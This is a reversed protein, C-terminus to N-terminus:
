LELLGPVFVTTGRTSVAWCPTSVGVQPKYPWRWGPLILDWGQILSIKGYMSLESLGPVFVTTGRTSVARWPTSVGVQPECLWRWRPLILFYGRILFIEMCSCRRCVPSSFPAGGPRYRGGLPTSVGVQPECLWCWGSLILDWGRKLFGEM